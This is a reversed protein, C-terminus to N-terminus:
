EAPKDEPAPAAPAEPAPAAPAAPAPEAPAAAAEAAKKKKGNMVALYILGGAALLLLIGLVPRYWVWAIAVVILWWCIGLIWAIIKAGFGVISGLFPLVKALHTLIDFINKFGWVLMILGLIRIIWAMTKNASHEATFMEEVSAIGTTLTELSYGNKDVFSTFSDGQVVALISVDSPYVAKFTIRLDGVEPANPNLGIYLTNGSVHFLTSGKPVSWKGLLDNNYAEVFEESCNPEIEKWDSMQGILESPLRYAGFSVNEAQITEDEVNALVYNSNQYSPDSFSKSDIPSSVWGTDYTYTTTTEQGGGVKDKTETHAHEQWQYYEVSRSLKVAKAASVGFVGEQLFSGEPTDAFGTAHVMKGNMEANVSNIDGLEVCEKQAHKLMKTTKVTRGENWFLLVTAAIILFFGMVVGSLANKLRDGYSSKTTVTYAM